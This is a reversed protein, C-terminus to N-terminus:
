DDWKLDHFNVFPSPFFIWEDFCIPRLHMWSSGNLRTSSALVDLSFNPRPRDGILFLSWDRGTWGRVLGLTPVAKLSLSRWEPSLQNLYFPLLLVFFSSLLYLILILSWM